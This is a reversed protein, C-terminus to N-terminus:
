HGALRFAAQTRNSTCTKAMIRTMHNAVSHPQIFLLRGISKNALGGLLLRAVDAERRSLHYDAVYEPPDNM